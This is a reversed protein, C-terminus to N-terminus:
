RPVGFVRGRSSPSARDSLWSEVIMAAGAFCFGAIARLVIWWVPDLLILSLLLAIAAASSLVSFSRIHGVRAVLRPSFYCGRYLGGGLGHRSPRAVPRFVKM